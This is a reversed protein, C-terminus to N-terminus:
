AGFEAATPMRGDAQDPHRRLPAPCGSLSYSLSRSPLFCPFLGVTVDSRGSLGESVTLFLSSLTGNKISNQFPIKLTDCTMVPPTFFRVFAATTQSFLFANAFRAVRHLSRATTKGNFGNLKKVQFFRFFRPTPAGALSQIKLRCPYQQFHSPFYQM